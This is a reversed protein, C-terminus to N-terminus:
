FYEAEQVAYTPGMSTLRKLMNEYFGKIQPDFGKGAITASQNALLGVLSDFWEAPIRNEDVVGCIGDTALQMFLPDVNVNLRAEYEAELPQGTGVIGLREATERVLQLRTKTIDM